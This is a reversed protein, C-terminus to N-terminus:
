DWRGTQDLYPSSEILRWRLPWAAPRLLAQEVRMRVLHQAGTFARVETGEWVIECHGSIHLLDGREFDPVVVAAAPQILLNGLTNFYLNGAFEPWTVTAGDDDVKIFGPRGGRHSMDCGGSSEDPAAHTAIFFTDAARLLARAQPDLRESSRAPFAAAHVAPQLSALERAQIFRPCNGFSQLVQMTFGHESAQLVVGNARNRRRTPLEIGLLGVSAGAHLLAALPDDRPPLADIRLTRENPATVFGPGPGALLTARPRGAHDRASLAVFPLLPFFERHQLPMAARITRPGVQAMRERVGYRAQAAREGSHFAQAGHAMDFPKTM